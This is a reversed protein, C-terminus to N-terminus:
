GQGHATDRHSSPSTAVTSVSPSETVAAPCSAPNRASSRRKAGSATASAAVRSSRAPSASAPRSADVRAAMAAVAPTNSAAARVPRHSAARAAGPHCRGGTQNWPSKWM